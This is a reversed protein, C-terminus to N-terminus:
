INIQLNLLFFFQLNNFFNTCHKLFIHIKANKAWNSFEEKKKKIFLKTKQKNAEKKKLYELIKMLNNM